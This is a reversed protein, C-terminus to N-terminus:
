TGPSVGVDGTVITGTGDFSVSQGGLVAFSEADGLSQAAATQALSFLALSFSLLLCRYFRKLKSM